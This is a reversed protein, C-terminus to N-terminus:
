TNDPLSGMDQGDPPEAEVPPLREASIDDPLRRPNPRTLNSMRSEQQRSQPVFPRHDQDHVWELDEIILRAIRIGDLVDDYGLLHEYFNRHLENAANFRERLRPLDFEHSLIIVADRIQDHSSHNWNRDQATMKVAQAVAGWTKESAQLMDGNITLEHEAQEILRRGIAKYRESRSNFM